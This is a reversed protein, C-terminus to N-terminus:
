HTDVSGGMSATKANLTYMLRVKRGLNRQYIGVSSSIRSAFTCESRASARPLRRSLRKPWGASCASSKVGMNCAFM